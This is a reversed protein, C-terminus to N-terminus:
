EKMAPSPALDWERKDLFHHEVKLAVCACIVVIICLAQGANKPLKGENRTARDHGDRHVRLRGAASSPEMHLRM